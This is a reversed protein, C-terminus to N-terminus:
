LRLPIQVSFRAGGSSAAVVPRWGGITASRWDDGGVAGVIAGVLVGGLAGSAAYLAVAEGRTSPQLLVACAVFEGIDAPECLPWVLGALAGFATGIGAGWLINKVYPHRRGAWVEIRRVTGLPVWRGEIGALGRVQMLVSDGVRDMFTGAVREESALTLRARAGPSLPTAAQAHVSVVAGVAFGSLTLVVRTVSCM